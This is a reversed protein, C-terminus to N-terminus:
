VELMNLNGKHKNINFGGGGGSWAYILSFMLAGGWQDKLHPNWRHGTFEGWMPGTVRFIYGNSSIMMNMEEAYLM